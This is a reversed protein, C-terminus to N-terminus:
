ARAEKVAQEAQIVSSKAMELNEAAAREVIRAEDLVRLAAKLKATM